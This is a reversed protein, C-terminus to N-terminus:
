RKTPHLRLRPRGEQEWTRTRERQKWAQSKLPFDREEGRGNPTVMEEGGQNDWTSAKDTVSGFLTSHYDCVICILNTSEMLYILSDLFVQLIANNQMIITLYSNIISKNM